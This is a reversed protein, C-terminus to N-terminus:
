PKAARDPILTTPEVARSINWINWMLGAHWAGICVYFAVLALVLDFTLVSGAAAIGLLLTAVRVLKGRDKAMLITLVTFGITLLLAVITSLRKEPSAFWAATVVKIDVYALGMGVIGGLGERGTREWKVGASSSEAEKRTLNEASTALVMVLGLWAVTWLSNDVENVFPTIVFSRAVSLIVAGLLM